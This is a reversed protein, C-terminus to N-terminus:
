VMNQRCGTPEPDLCRRRGAGPKVLREGGCHSSTSGCLLCYWQALLFYQFFIVDFPSCTGYQLQSVFPKISLLPCFRKACQVLSSTDGNKKPQAGNLRSRAGEARAAQYAATARPQSAPQSACCSSGSPEPKIQSMRRHTTSKRPFM